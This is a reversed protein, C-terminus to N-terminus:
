NEVKSLDYCIEQESVNLMKFIKLHLRSWFQELVQSLVQSKERTQNGIKISEHKNNATYLRFIMFLCVNKEYFQMLDLNKSM